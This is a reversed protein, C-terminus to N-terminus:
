PNQLIIGNGTYAQLEPSVAIGCAVPGNAYIESMIDNSSNPDIMGFNDISFIPYDNPLFCGYIDAVGDLCNKCKTEAVCQEGNSFGRAM